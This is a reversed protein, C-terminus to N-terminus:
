RLVLRHGRLMFGRETLRAQWAEKTGNTATGDLLGHKEEQETLRAFKDHLRHDTTVFTEKRHLIPPNASATYDFSDIEGTRLSLKGSRSLDPHPDTEFEPYVLKHCSKLLSKLAGECRLM